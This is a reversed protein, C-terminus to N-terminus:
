EHSISARVDHLRSESLGVERLDIMDILEARHREAAKMATTTQKSTSSNSGYVVVGGLVVAIAGIM